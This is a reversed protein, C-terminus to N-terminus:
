QAGKKEKSLFWLNVVEGYVEQAVLKSLPPLGLDALVMEVAEPHPLCGPKSVSMSFHWVDEQQLEYTLGVEIGVPLNVYHEPAHRHTESWNTLSKLQEMTLPHALAYEKMRRLAATQEPGIMLASM